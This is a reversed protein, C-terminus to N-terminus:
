DYFRIDLGNTVPENGWYSLRKFLDMSSEVTSYGAQRGHMGYQKAYGACEWGLVDLIATTFFSHWHLNCVSSLSMEDAPASAIVCIKNSQNVYDVIQGSYCSSILLLTKCPLNNFYEVLDPTNVVDHGNFGVCDMPMTLGKANFWEDQTGHGSYFFILIDESTVNLADIYAKIDAWKYNLLRTFSHNQTHRSLECHFTQAVETADNIFTDACNGKSDDQGVTVVHIIKNSQNYKYVGCEEREVISYDMTCGVLGLMMGVIVGAIFVGLVFKLFAKIM